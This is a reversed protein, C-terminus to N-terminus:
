ENVEAVQMKKIKEKSLKIAIGLWYLKHINKPLKDVTVFLAGYNYCYLELLEIPENRIYKYSYLM